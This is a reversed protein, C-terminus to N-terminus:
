EKGNSKSETNPEARTAIPFIKREGGLGNRMLGEAVFKAQGETDHYDTSENPSKGLKVEQPWLAVSRWPKEKTKM